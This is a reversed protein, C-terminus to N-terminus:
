ARVLIAARRRLGFIPGGDIYITATTIGSVSTFGGRGRDAKVAPSPRGRFDFGIDRTTRYISATTSVRINLGRDICSTSAATASCTSTFSVSAESTAACSHSCGNGDRGFVFVTIARSISINVIASPGRASTRGPGCSPRCAAPTDFVRATAGCGRFGLISTRV